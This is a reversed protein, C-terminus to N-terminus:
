GDSRLAETTLKAELIAQQPIPPTGRKIAARALLALVAIVVLLLGAVVLLAAWTPLETAIGAAAAALAFGLMFLSLVLAAIGLGIGLGLAVVKKKLELAALELELRLLASGHEAVQKAAAGLGGNSSTPSETGPTPM